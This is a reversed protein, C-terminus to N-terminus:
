VNWCSIHRGLVNWTSIQLLCSDNRGFRPRLGTHPLHFTFISDPLADDASCNMYHKPARDSSAASQRKVLSSISIGEPKRVPLLARIKKKVYTSPNPTKRAGTHKKKRSTCGTTQNGLNREFAAATTVCSQEKVCPAGTDLSAYGQALPRHPIDM